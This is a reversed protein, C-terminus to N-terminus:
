EKDDAVSEMFDVFSRDKRMDELTPQKFNPLDTFGAVYSGVFKVLNDEDLITRSILGVGLSTLDKGEKTLTNFEYRVVKDTNPDIGLKSRGRDGMYVELEVGLSEIVHSFREYNFGLDGHELAQAVWRYQTYSFLLASAKLNESTQQFFEEQITSRDKAIALLEEAEVICDIGPQHKSLNM